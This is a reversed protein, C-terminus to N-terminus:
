GSLTLTHGMLAYGHYATLHKNYSKNNITTKMEKIFGPNVSDPNM